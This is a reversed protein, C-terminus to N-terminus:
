ECCKRCDPSKTCESQVDIKFASTFLGDKNILTSFFNSVHELTDEQISYHIHFGTNIATILDVETLLELHHKIEAESISLHTSLGKLCMYRQSLIVIIKFRDENGLANCIQVTKTM